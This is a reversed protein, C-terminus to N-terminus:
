VEELTREWRRGLKVQLLLWRVEEVAAEQPSLSEAAVSRAKYQSHTTPRRTPDWELSTWVQKLNSRQARM